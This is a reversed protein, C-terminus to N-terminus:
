VGIPLVFPLKKTYDTKNPYLYLISEVLSDRVKQMRDTVFWKSYDLESCVKLDETAANVMIFSNLLSYSTIIDLSTNWGYKLEYPKNAALAGIKPHSANSYLTYRRNLGHQRDDKYVEKRFWQSNKVYKCKEGDIPTKVSKCYSKIGKDPKLAAKKSYFFEECCYVHRAGEEDAMCYFLKPFSEFVIRIIAYFPSFDDSGLMKNAVYMSQMNHCCMNYCMAKNDWAHATMLPALKLIVATQFGLTEQLVQYEQQDCQKFFADFMKRSNDEYSTFGAQYDLM